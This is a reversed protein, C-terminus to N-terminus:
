HFGGTIVFYKLDTSSEAKKMNAEKSVSVKLSFDVFFLSEIKRELNGYPVEQVGV